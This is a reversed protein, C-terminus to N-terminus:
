MDALNDTIWIYMVALTKDYVLQRIRPYNIEIHQSLDSIQYIEVLDIASCNDFFLAMPIELFSLDNLASEVLLLAQLQQFPYMTPM